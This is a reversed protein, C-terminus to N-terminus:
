NVNRRVFPDVQLDLGLSRYKQLNQFLERAIRVEQMWDIVWPIAGDCSYYMVGIQFCFLIIAYKLMKTDVLYVNKALKLPTRIDGINYSLSSYLKSQIHDKRRM